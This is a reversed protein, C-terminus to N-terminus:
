KLGMWKKAKEFSRYQEPTLQTTKKFAKYFNSYTSFGVQNSISIISEETEILLSQSVEVRRKLIFQYPTMGLEEKFLRGFHETEWPTLDALDSINIKEGIQENIRNLVIKIHFPIEKQYSDGGIFREVNRHEFNHLIVFVNAVLSEANFPKVLYGYPRTSSVKEMTLKDSYSTLYMFPILNKEMLIKGLDIGSKRDNLNVDIIVLHLVETDIIKLAQDVNFCDIIVEYGEKELEIQINLAILPEDEVVLIKKQNM